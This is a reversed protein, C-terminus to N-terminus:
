GGENRVISDKMSEELRPVWYQEIKQNVMCNYLWGDADKTVNGGNDKPFAYGVRCTGKQEGKCSTQWGATDQTAIAKTHLMTVETEENSFRSQPDPVIKDFKFGAKETDERNMQSLTTITSYHIYHQLVYDARFIQKEAPMGDKKDMQRDCNYTRLITKDIPVKLHFCPAMIDCVTKNHIPAPPEILDHRPWARWSGFSIIKMGAQDLENLLQQLSTYKGVPVMYEDIDMNALWDSQPGFRLRCSSEAAYQSSREGPSDNFNRNNNCITAPWPLLTAQGPFQDTIPKLSSNEPSNDYIYVHEVGVLLHFRIWEDLRRSGDSIAFRDGRTAYGTSAWTCAILRHPKTTSTAVNSKVKPAAEALARSNAVKATVTPEPYAITTPQCIPINEWRGSDQIKPLIHAEGWEEAVSFNNFKQDQYHPPLFRNPAGYRPPTRIPIVNVFLSAKDNVVSSGDRITDVLNPPVPCQFILQSTHLHKNDKGLKSNGDKSFTKKYGKRYSAYDYQVNYVSLTEQGSPQFQCIFRTEIGDPDAQEHTTLQYRNQPIRKVPVHQFLAIQPQMHELITAEEPTTGTRCRRKNQAIFQIFQGDETPFVDHIWPLFPDADPYDDIPFQETLRQCSNVRPYEIKTLQNATVNRMPLPKKEWDNLHIPELYARLTRANATTQKEVPEPKKIDIFQDPKKMHIMEVQEMDNSTGKMMAQADISVYKPKVPPPVSNTGKLLHKKPRQEERQKALSELHDKLVIKSQEVPPGWKGHQEIEMTNSRGVLVVMVFVYGCFVVALMIMLIKHLQSQSLRKKPMLNAVLPTQLKNRRMMGSWPTKKPPMGPPAKFGM